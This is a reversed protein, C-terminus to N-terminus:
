GELYRRLTDVKIRYEDAIMERAVGVTETKRLHRYMKM